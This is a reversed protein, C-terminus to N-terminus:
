KAPALPLDLHPVMDRHVTFLSERTSNCALVPGSKGYDFGVIEKKGTITTMAISMTHIKAACSAAEGPAPKVELARLTAFTNLFREVEYLPKREKGGTTVHWDAGAREITFREKGGFSIVAAQVNDATVRLVRRNIFQQPPLSAVQLLQVPIKVVRESGPSRYRIVNQRDSTVQGFDIEHREEKGNKNLLIELRHVRRDPVSEDVFDKATQPIPDYLECVLSALRNMTATDAEGAAPSNEKWDARALQAALPVGQEPTDTRDFSVVTEAVGERQLVKLSRVQNADCEILSSTKITDVEIRNKWRIYFHAGMYFAVFIALLTAIKKAM